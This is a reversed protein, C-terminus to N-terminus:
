IFSRGTEPMQPKLKSIEVERRAQVKRWPLDDAQRGRQLSWLRLGGLLDKAVL